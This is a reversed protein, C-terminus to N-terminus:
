QEAPSARCPSIVVLPRTGGALEGARRRDDAGLSFDWRLDRQRVGLHEAFSFLGDMVHQSPTPAIKESTFLWQYDRARARDFGLRTDARVVSSVLNARMSAHM